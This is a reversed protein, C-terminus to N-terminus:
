FDLSSHGELNRIHCSENLYRIVIGEPGYEFLNICATDQSIEWFQSVGLGLIGLIVVKCIVRHTVVAITEEPHIGAVARIGAMARQQAQALTEGGPFVAKEPRKMFDDFVRPYKDKVEKMPLGSWEGFDLDIVGPLIEVKLGRARALPEATEMARKLPSAYIFQIRERALFRAVAEAEERGEQSLPRDALGRFIKERNWDTQGHRILYVLSM